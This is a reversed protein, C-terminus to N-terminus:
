NIDKNYNFTLELDELEKKTRKLFSDEGDDGALLYDIRHAYIYAQRLIKLGRKFEKIVDPRYKYSREWTPKSEENADNEGESNIIEQEVKDAIDEIRWEQYDFSGGSM